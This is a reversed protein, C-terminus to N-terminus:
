VGHVGGMIRRYRALAVAASFSTGSRQATARAQNCARCKRHGRALEGAVLNPAILEHGAPCNTKRAQFNTGHRLQDLNNERPTDWRLNTLRNDDSIGNGHCCVMGAPRAGTFATLVLDHIYRRQQAGGACLCIARYGAGASIPKLIRAGRRIRGLDSIEYNEWGAVPLWHETM